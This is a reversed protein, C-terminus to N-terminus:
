TSVHESKEVSRFFLSSSAIMGSLFFISSALPEVQAELEVVYLCSLAFIVGDITFLSVILNNLIFVKKTSDKKFKILLLVIILSTAFYYISAILYNQLRDSNIDLQMLSLVTGVVVLIILILISYKNM